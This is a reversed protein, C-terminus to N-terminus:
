LSTLPIRDPFMILLQDLTGRWNVPKGIWGETIRETALYLSKFLADASVFAGKTKTVKRLQRHFNEMANTTYIMKRIELPYRYFTSLEPWNTRWSKVAHPYKSGWKEEMADLQILASAEDPSRYILKMDSTFAKMDKWNVLKTSNRVQHVVCKQIDTNPFVSTIAENFGTLGDVSMVLIDRVGRSKLENLVGLWYRSSENHGVWLGLIEKHGSPDIGLASYVAKKVVSGEERVSFHIADMFVCAYVEQLPRSQWEKAKPLIKDTIRSILSPSLEIGYIDKIHKEIDRDSLGSAYMNIVKMEIDSIDRQYKPVIQPEFEGERDRPVELEIEGMSSRVKKSSHGNRSNDTQKKDNDYKEYGLEEDLEAELSDQLADKLLDKLMEQMDAMTKPQYYALLQKMFAKKEPDRETRSKRPM